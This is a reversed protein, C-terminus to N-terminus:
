NEGARIKKTDGNTIVVKNKSANKVEAFVQNIVEITGENDVISLHDADFNHTSVSSETFKELGYNKSIKVIFNDKPRILVIPSKLKKMDNKEPAIIQKIRNFSVLSMALLFEKSYKLDFPCMNLACKVRDEYSEISHLKPLIVKVIENKPQIM